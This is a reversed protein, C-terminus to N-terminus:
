ALASEIARGLEVLREARMAALRACDSELRERLADREGLIRDLASDIAPLDDFGMEGIPYDLMEVLGKTKHTGSPLPVFPTGVAAAQISSHYRGGILGAAGAFIASVQRYNLGPRPLALLDNGAELAAAGVSDTEWQTWFLPCVQLGNRAAWEVARVQFPLAGSQRMAASGTICLYGRNPPKSFLKVFEDDSPQARFASDPLMAHVPIQHQQAFAMSAPERVANWRFGSYVNRLQPLFAPVSSFLTQNLSIVPKGALAAWHPLMLLRTGGFFGKGSMTGEAMFIVADAERVKDLQGAYVKSVLFDFLGSPKRSPDALIKQLAGNFLGYVWRDHFTKSGLPVTAVQVERGPLAEKLDELLGFSTAQCGWNSRDGTWNIIALKLTSM